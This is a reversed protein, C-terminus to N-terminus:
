VTGFYSNTEMPLTIFEGAAYRAFLAEMACVFPQYNDDGALPAYSNSLNRGLFGALDHREANDFVRHEFQGGQFFEQFIAPEDEIGGGFAVFSPCLDICVRELEQNIEQEMDRNNWVLAVPAGPRKIRRCEERFRPRDFWHFAQAATVLSVGHDELTTNEATAAVSRFGPQDGLHSEAVARMDANPEVAWVQLGRALLQGTLIGTGSGVEAVVDGTQLGAAAMLYELYADPYRPRYRAYQEAKGTFKQTTDM